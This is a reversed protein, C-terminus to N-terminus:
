TAKNSDVEQQNGFLELVLTATCRRVSLYMNCFGEGPRAKEMTQGTHKFQTFPPNWCHEEFDEEASSM